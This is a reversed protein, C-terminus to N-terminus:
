VKLFSKQEKIQLLGMLFWPIILILFLEGTDRVTNNRLTSKIHPSLYEDPFFKKFM